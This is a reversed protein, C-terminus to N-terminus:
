FSLIFEYLCLFNIKINTLWLTIWDVLFMNHRHQRTLLLTLISIGIWRGLLKSDLLIEILISNTNWKMQAFVMILWVNGSWFSKFKQMYIQLNFRISILCVLNSFQDSFFITNDVFYTRSVFDIAVSNLM